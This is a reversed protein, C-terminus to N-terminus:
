QVVVSDLYISTSGSSNAPSLFQVGVEKVDGLNAVSSLNLTLTTAGSSNIQVAGSDYWTYGSGTKVYLKAQLGNGITGWNAHKVKATLSQKGSFNHAAVRNLIFQGGGLNVDAKLSSSGSAFWETVSWPGGTVNSGTWGLTSGGEFDYLTTGTGGTNFISAKVSTAKIGNTGNFVLNGWSTFTQWDSSSVLDLWANSSDNGAWSWALYGIGKSQAQNMVEQANVTCGLNNNGNNYNYGFEGIMVALGLNKIAQLETGIRSSDNWSGYMHISFMTNHDPDHSLLTNGYAKIPSSNQGWGSADVVLTNHIGGNRLTSIATKYADRWATDSLSNGGWENAINVLVYKENSTLIPKIDSRTFYQALQNLLVADDSGTGDHLEIMAVLGLEKCRDVIQQLRSATGSLTWVIRVTNAKNNNITSLANYSQTDYWAHANNVGRM